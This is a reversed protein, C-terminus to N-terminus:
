SKISKIMFCRDCKVRSRKNLQLQLLTLLKTVKAFVFNFGGSSSASVNFCTPTSVIYM